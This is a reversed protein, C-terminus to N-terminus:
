NEKNFDHHTKFSESIAVSIYFESPGPVHDFRSNFKRHLLM